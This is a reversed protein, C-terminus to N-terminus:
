TRRRVSQKSAETGKSEDPLVMSRRLAMEDTSQELSSDMGPRLFFFAANVAPDARRVRDVQAALQLSDSGSRVMDM